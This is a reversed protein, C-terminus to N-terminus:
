PERESHADPAAERRWQLRSWERRLRVDDPWRRLARELIRRARDGRGLDANTAAVLAQVIPREPLAAALTSAAEFAKEYDGLERLTEIRLVMQKLLARQIERNKPRAEFAQWLDAEARECLEADRLRAARAAAADGEREFEAARERAAEARRAHQVGLKFRYLALDERPVVPQYAIAWAVGLFLLSPLARRWRRARLDAAVRVGGEGTLVLVVPVLPMRYRSGTYFLALSALYTVLYLTLLLARRDRRAFFLGCISLPFVLGWSPLPLRLVSSLEERFYEFSYNDPVEYDGASLRLKMWFLRAAHAPDAAIEALGQRFWFRSRESPSLPRGARREAEDRMDDQEYRPNPRVFPPPRYSGVHNGRHNGIYFNQGAQSTILVFDRSAIANHISVPAIALALGFAVACGAALRRAGGHRGWAVWGLLVPVFLLYNGRTLTALGFAFGAGLWPLLVAVSLPRLGDDGADARLVLVLALTVLLLSLSVKLLLADYYLSPGYLAALLGALAGAPTGFVARGVRYVFVATAAGLLSQVCPVLSSGAGFLAYLAALFYPYLPDQYFARDELWHGALIELAREHYAEADGMAYRFSPANWVSWLYAGRAALAVGFVIWALARDSPRPITM